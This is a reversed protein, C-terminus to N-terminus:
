YVLLGRANEGAALARHAANIAQLPYRQTILEDLRLKGALYLEVLRPFDVSPLASGYRSGILRNETGYLRTPDLSLEEGSPMIGLMVCTGGPALAAWAQQVSRANGVAVIAYDLGRGTIDRIAQTVDDQDARLCHTAGLRTALELKGDVIDIAIIPHAGALVGGQVANLGVGGCGFVALSAGVPVNATNIVAGVGTMVSCGILAAKDLPMDTRIKVVSGEPVVIEPAYTAPGFHYVPAGGRRMRTTGDAFVGFAPQHECIAPRGRLCSRCRSCGLTWSIIVHDGPQIQTIDPGVEEVIGAGEDGLVMPMPIGSLSGDIVHLCSHCVGSAVMRVRVEGRRPTELEVEELTM